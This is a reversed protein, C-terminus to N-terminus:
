NTKLNDILNKEVFATCVLVPLTNCMGGFTNQGFIIEFRVKGEVSNAKRQSSKGNAPTEFM